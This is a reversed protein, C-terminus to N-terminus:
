YGREFLAVSDIYYTQPSLDMPQLDILGYGMSILLKSDRALSAPDGSVYVIRKIGLQKIGSIVEKGLGSPPPDVLAIDYEAEEDLMDDLVQEVQGEIVDINDFDMLNVDADSVAPPYSDVLTVLEARPAIFASYIGVGAYLDLVRDKGTLKLRKMVEIMLFEIQGINPRIYGGATVRFEREGVQFMSYADGILNIPENDPLILNVSVALDTTLDPEEEEDIEFIIMMEGDTGRQLTMKKAREYDLDLEEYLALLDPHVIHCESLPEVAWGNQRLYGWEGEKSRTLTMRFNYEWAEQSPAVPRMASELIRDSVDGLRSLQDALVDQKLLLQTEYNIHQWHCSWCRGQGFHGCVPTVRDASAALLQEGQGFLVKGSDGTIKAVIEEGPITYPIFMIKGEHRGIGSGGHAMDFVQVEVSKGVFPSSKKKPKRKNNSKRGKRRRYDPKGAM